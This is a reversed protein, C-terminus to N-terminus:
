RHAAFMKDFDAATFLPGSPQYITNGIMFTPTSNVGLVMAADMTKVIAKSTDAGKMDERLRTADLGLEAALADIDKDEVPQERAILKEHAAAFKGQKGAALALRAELVSPDGFIPFFRVVLKVDPNRALSERVAPATARCAPCRYDLIEVATIKGDAAGIFSDFAPQHLASQASHVQWLRFGVAAAVVFVAIYLLRLFM